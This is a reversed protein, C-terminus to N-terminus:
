KVSFYRDSENRGEREGKCNCTERGNRKDGLYVYVKICKSNIFFLFPFNNKFLVSSM